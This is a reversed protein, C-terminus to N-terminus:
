RGHVSMLVSTAIRVINGVKVRLVRTKGARSQHLCKVHAAAKPYPWLEAIRSARCVCVGRGLFRRLCQAGHVPCVHHRPGCDVLRHPGKCRLLLCQHVRVDGRCAAPALLRGRRKCSVAPVKIYARAHGCWVYGLACAASFSPPMTSSKSVSLFTPMSSPPSHARSSTCPAPRTRKHSRSHM